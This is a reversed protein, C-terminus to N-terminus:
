VQRRWCIYVPASTWPGAEGGRTGAGLGYCTDRAKGATRDRSHSEVSGLRSRFRFPVSPGLNFFYLTCFQVIVGKWSTVECTMIKYIPHPFEGPALVILHFSHGRETISRRRSVPGLWLPPRFCAIFLRTALSLSSAHLKPLSTTCTALTTAICGAALLACICKTLPHRM